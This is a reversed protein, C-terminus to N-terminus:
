RIRRVAARVSRMVLPRACCPSCRFAASTSPSIPGTGMLYPGAQRLVVGYKGPIVASAAPLARRLQWIQEPCLINVAYSVLYNAAPEDNPTVDRKVDGMVQSYSQGGSVKDCIGHGYGIADNNRFNYHRRVAVDYLYEAAPTPAAYARPVLTPTAGGVAAAAVISTILLSRRTIASMGISREFAM